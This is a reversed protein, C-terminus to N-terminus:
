HSFPYSVRREYGEIIANGWFEQEGLIENIVQQQTYGNKMKNVFYNQGNGDVARGLLALYQEGIFRILYEDSIMIESVITSTPTGSLLRNVYGAKVTPDVTHGLLKIFLQEVFGGNTAGANTWFEDTTCFQNILLERSATGNQLRDVWYTRGSPDSARSLLLLFQQDVFKGYGEAYWFSSIIGSKNRNTKFVSAWYNLGGQDPTRQNVHTYLSYVYDEYGYKAEEVKFKITESAPKYFFASYRTQWSIIGYASQPPNEYGISDYYAPEDFLEYTFFGKVQTKGDLENIYSNIVDAQEAQQNGFSGDRRNIETLWIPRSFRTSLVDIIDGESAWVTRLSGMESYWHYGVIDYPIGANELLQFFGYHLWGGSNIITQATNDAQKIGDIMGEFYSAVTAFKAADFDTTLDGNAGLLIIDNDQENGLEYYDIYSGYQTAFGLGQLKGAAYAQSTTHSYDLGALRVVPLIKIGKTTAQTLLDSFATNALNGSLDTLVDCRYWSLQHEKLLELQQAIGTTGEYAEQSVPHGNIGWKFDDNVRIPLLNVSSYHVASTIAANSLPLPTPDALNFDLTCGFLLLSSILYIIKNKM